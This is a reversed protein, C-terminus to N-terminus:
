VVSKRDAVVRAGTAAALAEATAVNRSTVSIDHGAAALRAALASAMNGSGILSVKM